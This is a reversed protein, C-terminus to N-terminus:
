KLQTWTHLKQDLRFKLAKQDTKVIFHKGIMYQGWTTVAMVLALLEKDYVSMAQHQPSLGMSLYAISHGEQMIVVGIGVDYADTKAIFTLNFDPLALVLASILANKLNQFAVTAHDGWKFGYKKLLDTLPKRIQGYGKIFRRYYGALGLFSRLHKITVPIPWQQIAQIKKPDTSVGKTFIFHTLYKISTVVFQRKSRLAFLHHQLLLRFTVKLHEAHKKLSKASHTRFATKPVDAHTM